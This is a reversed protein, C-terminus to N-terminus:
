LQASIAAKGHSRFNSKSREDHNPSSVVIVRPSRIMRSSYKANEWTSTSREEKIVPNRIGQQSLRKKMMWAESPCGPRTYGGSVVVPNQPHLRLFSAARNVRLKLVNPATCNSNLRAGMVVVPTRNDMAWRHAEIIEGVGNAQAQPAQTTMAGGAVATAALVGCMMRKMSSGFSWTKETATKMETPRHMFPLRDWPM